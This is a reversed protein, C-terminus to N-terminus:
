EKVWSSLIVIDILKEPSGYCIMVFKTAKECCFNRECKLLSLRFDLHQCSVGLCFGTCARRSVERQQQGHQHELAQEQMVENETDM